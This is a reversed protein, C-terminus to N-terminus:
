GCRSGRPDWSALDTAVRAVGWDDLDAEVQVEQAADRIEEPLVAGLQPHVWRIGAEFAVLHEDALDVIPQYLLQLAGEAIAQRCTGGCCRLATWPAGWAATPSGTATAGRRSPGTCPRIPPACCCTRCSATWHISPSASAPPSGFRRTELMFPQDLQELLKRAVKAAGEGDNLEPLIVTFEDGGLRAV